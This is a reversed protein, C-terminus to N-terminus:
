KDGIKQQERHDVQTDLGVSDGARRGARASPHNRKAYDREYARQQKERYKEQERAEREERRQRQEPTEPKEKKPACIREAEARNYGWSMMHAVDNSAGDAIAALMIDERRQYRRQREIEDEERLRATTGPARGLRLDENLDREKQAYDELVVVLANGGAHAPHSAAARQQNATRAQEAMAQEHRETIREAIREGMATAFLMDNTSNMQERMSRYVTKVLYQHMLKVTVVASERGFLDWRGTKEGPRAGHWDAHVFSQKALAKMIQRHWRKSMFGKAGDKIRNEGEGGAAEVTANTIGHEAMMARAREAALQAEAETAGSDAALALLKKVRSLVKTDIERNSM